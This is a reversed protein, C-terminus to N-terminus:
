ARGWVPGPLGALFRAGAARAKGEAFLASLMAAGSRLGDHCRDRYVVAGDTAAAVNLAAALCERVRSGPHNALYRRANGAPLTTQYVLGGDRSYIRVRAGTLRNRKNPNTVAIKM